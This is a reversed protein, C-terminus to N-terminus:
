QYANASKGYASSGAGVPKILRNLQLNPDRQMIGIFDEVGALFYSPGSVPM